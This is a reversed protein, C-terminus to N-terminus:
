SSKTVKIDKCKKCEHVRKSSCPMKDDSRDFVNIDILHEWEHKCQNELYNIYFGYAVVLAFCITGCIILLEM